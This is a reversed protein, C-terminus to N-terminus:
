KVAIEGRSSFPFVYPVCPYGFICAACACVLLGYSIGPMEPMNASYWSSYVSSYATSVQSRGAYTRLRSANQTLPTSRKELQDLARLVAGGCEAEWSCKLRRNPWIVPAKSPDEEVELTLWDAQPRNAKRETELVLVQDLKAWSLRRRM